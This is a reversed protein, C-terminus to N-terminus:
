PERKVKLGLKRFVNDIDLIVSVSVDWLPQSERIVARIEPVTISLGKRHWIYYYMPAASIARIQEDKLELFGSIRIWSVTVARTYTGKPLLQPIVKARQDLALGSSFVGRGCGYGFP